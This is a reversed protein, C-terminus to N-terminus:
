KNEPTASNKAGNDPKPEKVEVGKTILTSVFPGQKKPPSETIYSPIFTLFKKVVEFGMEPHAQERGRMLLDVKVKHGEGLFENAKKAKISLDHESIRLSLRIGKVDVKKIKKKQQQELKKQHYRLKDFNVIKVVPPRAQPSVEVLDLEREQALALADATKMIGLQAGTEDIVRVEPVRIQNNTRSKQM